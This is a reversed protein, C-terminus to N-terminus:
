YLLMLVAVTTSPTEHTFSIVANPTQPNAPARHTCQRTLLGPHLQLPRALVPVVALYVWCLGLFHQLQVLVGTLPQHAAAHLEVPGQVVSLHPLM